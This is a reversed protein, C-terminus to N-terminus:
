VDLTLTYRLTYIAGVLGRLSSPHAGLTRGLASIVRWTVGDADGGWFSVRHGGILVTFEIGRQIFLINNLQSNFPATFLYLSEISFSYLTPTGRFHM